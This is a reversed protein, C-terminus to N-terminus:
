QKNVAVHSPMDRTATILFLKLRSTKKVSQWPPGTLIASSRVTYKCLM